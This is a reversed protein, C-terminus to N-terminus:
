KDVKPKSKFLDLFEQWSKVGWHACILAKTKNKQKRTGLLFLFRNKGERVEPVWGRERAEDRSINVGCQRPHRLRGDQDRYFTSRAGSTGLEYASLAKYIGGHHGETADSYSLVCRIHGKYKALGKLAGATFWSTVCEPRATWQEPDHVFLRHLETVKDVHDPGMLFARVHESCPAAFACAGVIAGDHYLGWTMPRNHCGKTYHNACIFNRGEHHAAKTIVLNDIM